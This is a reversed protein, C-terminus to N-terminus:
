RLPEPQGRHGSPRPEATAACEPCPHFFPCGAGKPLERMLADIDRGHQSLLSLARLAADSHAPRACLLQVALQETSDLIGPIDEERNGAVCHEVARAAGDVRDSPDLRRMLPFEGYSGIACFCHDNFNGHQRIWLLDHLRAHLLVELNMTTCEEWIELTEAPVEELAMPYSCVGKTRCGVLRPAYPGPWSEAGSGRPYLEYAFALALDRYASKASADRGFASIAEFLDGVKFPRSAPTLLHFLCYDGVWNLMNRLERRRNDQECVPCDSACEPLPAADEDEDIHEETMLSLIFLKEASLDSNLEIAYQVTKPPFSDCNGEKM